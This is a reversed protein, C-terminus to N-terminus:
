FHQAHSSFSCQLPCDSFSSELWWGCLFFSDLCAQVCDSNMCVCVSIFTSCDSRLVTPHTSYYTLCHLFPSYTLSSHSNLTRAWKWTIRIHTSVSFMIGHLKKLGFHWLTCTHRNLHACFPFVIVGARLHKFLLANRWCGCTGSCMWKLSM